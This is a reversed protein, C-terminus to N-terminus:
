LATNNRRLASKANRYWRRAAAAIKSTATAPGGSPGIKEIQREARLMDNMKRGHVVATAVSRALEEVGSNTAPNCHFVHSQLERAARVCHEAETHWPEWTGEKLAKNATDSNKCAPRDRCPCGIGLEDRHTGTARGAGEREREEGEAGEKREDGTAGGVGTVGEAPMRTLGVLALVPRSYDVGGGRSAPTVGSDHVLQLWYKTANLFSQRDSTDYCWCILAAGRFYSSVLKSFRRQGAGDWIAMKCTGLDTEQLRTSFEIGITPVYASALGQRGLRDRLMSKGIGSDGLLVVNAYHRFASM